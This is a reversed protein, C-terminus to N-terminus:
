CDEFTLLYFRHKSRKKLHQQKSHQVKVFPILTKFPGLKQCVLEKIDSIVKMSCIFNNILFVIARKLLKVM